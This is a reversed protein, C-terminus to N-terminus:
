KQEEFLFRYGEDWLQQKKEDNCNEIDIVIPPKPDGLFIRIPNKGQLVEKRFVLRRPTADFDREM